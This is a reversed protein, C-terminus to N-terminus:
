LCYSMFQIDNPVSCYPNSCRLVSLRLCTLITFRKGAHMTRAITQQAILGWSIFLIPTDGVVHLHMCRDVRDVGGPRIKLQTWTNTDIDFEEFRWMGPVLIGATVCGTDTGAIALSNYTPPGSKRYWQWDKTYESILTVLAVPLCELDNNEVLIPLYISPDHTPELAFLGLNTAHLAFLRSQSVFLDCALLRPWSWRDVVTLVHSRNTDVDHVHV